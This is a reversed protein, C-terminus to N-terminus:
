EEGYENEAKKDPARGNREDDSEDDAKKERAESFLELEEM